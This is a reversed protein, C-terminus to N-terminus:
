LSLVYECLDNMERQSLNRTDGHEGSLNHTTLVDRTTAASGDHLYPATRWIEIL